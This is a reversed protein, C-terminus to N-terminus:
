EIVKGQVKEAPAEEAARAAELREREKDERAKLAAAFTFTTERPAKVLLHRLVEDLGKVANNVEPVCNPECEFKVWGLYAEDVVYKRASVTKSMTYALEFKIPDESAIETGGVKSIIGKIANVVDSVNEEAISPLILYGLEYVQREKHDETTSM